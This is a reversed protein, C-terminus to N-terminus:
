IKKEKQLVPKPILQNIHTQQTKRSGHIVSTIGTYLFGFQILILFPIWAILGMYIAYISQLLFFIGLSLELVTTVDMSSFYSSSKWDDAKSTVAYKPTRIFESSMGLLAELVARSNNVALGCGLSIATPVNKLQKLWDKKYVERVAVIYFWFISLTGATIAFVNILLVYQWGLSRWFYSMPIMSVLIILLLLYSINGLLHFASEIKLRFPIEKNILIGPLLKLATQTGGKAWRHQQSKFANIDVPLEANAQIDHLYVLKWGNIQARYSLDLDETLTDHQWGGSTEICKKRIIGATGNFNFFMGGHYRSTQEVLFHGDLLVSQARTLTSYEKNLHGWRIQVIGIEPDTFFNVTNMLFDSPAIFDADFIAILSGRATKLGNSLAGAKYGNRKERRIHHINFGKQKYKQVCDKAINITNDTSDDLVQIELLEKPYDIKCVSSILREVVYMENYVPLQVTIIPLQDFKKKPVPKKNKYKNFLRALHYRHLGFTCLLLLSICYLATLIIKSSLYLYDL